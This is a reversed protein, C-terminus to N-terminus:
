DNSTEGTDQKRVHLLWYRQLLHLSTIDSARVYMLEGSLHFAPDDTDSEFQGLLVGNRTVSGGRYLELKGSVTLLQKSTM